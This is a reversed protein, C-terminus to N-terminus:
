THERGIMGDAFREAFSKVLDSVVALYRGCAQVVEAEEGDFNFSRVSRYFQPLPTGPPGTWIHVQAGELAAALFFESQSIAESRHAVEAGKRHVTAVRQENFNTLLAQEDTPLSEKWGLFWEDYKQKHETQLVLSVSRAASLFASLYFGFAEPENSVIRQQLASLKRYFFEAEGLKTKTAEIAPMSQNTRCGLM